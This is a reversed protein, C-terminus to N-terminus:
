GPNGEMDQQVTIPAKLAPRRQCALWGIIQRSKWGRCGQWAAGALPAGPQSHQGVTEM